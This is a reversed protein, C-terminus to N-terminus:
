YPQHRQVQRGGSGRQKGGGYGGAGGTVLAQTTVAGRGSAVSGGGLSGRGAQRM